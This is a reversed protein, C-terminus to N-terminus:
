RRPDTGRGLPDGRGRAKELPEATTMSRCRQRRWSVLVPRAIGTENGALRPQRQLSDLGRRHLPFRRRALAAQSVPAHAGHRRAQRASGGQRQVAAAAAASLRARVARAGRAAAAGAPGAQGAARGAPAQVALEREIEELRIEEGGGQILLRQVLNKCSACTTPGRSLQAAPEAGRRQFPPVAPGRADVIRDVYHRLLEPVDEAYERLPPVRVILTNLHALLDRRFAEAGARSEIGPQASSVCARARVRRPESGGIARSAARVRARGVLLASRRRRCIRSRTSSCRAAPRGARAAGPSPRATRAHRVARQEADADRLSSAVLTVFPRAPARARARASLARVGRARLGARRDAAGALLQAAIQQLEARLQQM